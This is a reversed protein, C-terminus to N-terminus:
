ADRDAPPRYPLALVAEFVERETRPWAQADIYGEQARELEVAGGDRTALATSTIGGARRFACHSNLRLAPRRAEAAWYRMFREFRKSGAWGLVCYAWQSRAAVIFDVRVLPQDHVQLLLFLKNHMDINSVVNGAAEGAQGAADAKRARHAETRLAALAGPEPAAHHQHAHWEVAPHADLAALLKDVLRLEAGEAAPSILYDLDYCVSRERGYGGALHWEASPDAAAIVQECVARIPAWAERPQPM